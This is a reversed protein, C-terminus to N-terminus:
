LRHGPPFEGAAIKQQIKEALESVLKATMSPRGATFERGAFRAFAVQCVGVLPHLLVIRPYLFHFLTDSSVFRFRNSRSPFNVSRTVLCVRRAAAAPKTPVGM